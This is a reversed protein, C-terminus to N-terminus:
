CTTTLAMSSLSPSASVHCPLPALFYTGLACCPSPTLSGSLTYLALICFPLLITLIYLYLPFFLWYLFFPLPSFIYIITICPNYLSCSPCALSLAAFAFNCSPCCTTIHMNFNLIKRQLTRRHHARVTGESWGWCRRAEDHRWLRSHGWQSQTVGVWTWM